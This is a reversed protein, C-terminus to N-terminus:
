SLVVGHLRILSYRHLEVCEKVEASSPPSHDAEREPRKIGLSSGRTGMPYSAPHAGSGNQLRHHLFFDGTGVPFRVTSGRDDLGYGLAIGVSGNTWSHRFTLEDMARDPMYLLPGKCSIAYNTLLIFSGQMNFTSEFVLVATTNQIKIHCLFGDNRQSAAYSHVFHTLYTQFCLVLYVQQRFYIYISFWL